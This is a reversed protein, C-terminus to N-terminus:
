RKLWGRAIPRACLRHYVSELLAGFAATLREGAAMGLAAAAIAAVAFAGLVDSPFHVGVLIRACGTLFAMAVLVMGIRRSARSRSLALAIGVAALATVHDSPFSSDAAHPLYQHGLGEAFPRPRDWALAILQNAVLAAIGTILAKVAATRQLTDGTLWLAPLAAPILFVPWEAAATAAWAGWAPLSVFSSNIDGFVALDMGAWTM